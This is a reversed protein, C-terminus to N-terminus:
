AAAVERDETAVPAQAMRFGLGTSGRPDSFTVIHNEIRGIDKSGKIAKDVIAANKKMKRIWKTHTSEISVGNGDGGNFRSGALNAWVKQRMTKPLDKHMCAINIESDGAMSRLNLNASGLTFFVDDVIMLKSHIYIERCRNKSGQTYLKAILVKIGLTELDAASVPPRSASDAIDADMIHTRVLTAPDLQRVNKALRAIMSDRDQPQMERFDRVNADYKKITGGQGLEAVTDYTRPVMGGKEPEPMVIFVYLDPIPPTVCAAQMGQVYKRRMEKLHEAWPTHQFYQNEIYIYNRAQSTALWYAEQITKDDEEPQTRVIQAIHRDKGAPLTFQAATFAQRVWALSGTEAKLDWNREARDWASSFNRNLCHLARGQVRIAYDRYPKLHLYPNAVDATGEWAYGRLPDDYVHEPTDWYDTTSNLGMVYGVSTPGPLDYDILIPKQHHTAVSKLGAIEAPTFGSTEGQLNAAVAAASPCRHRVHVNPMKGTTVKDWWDLCYKARDPTQHFALHFNALDPNNKDAFAAVVRQLQKRNTYGPLNNAMLGLEKGTGAPYWVLLRVRVGAAAVQSLLDGYTLGRPWTEGQREGVEMGPDFGWCILDVSKKAARIDKVIHPFTESACVYFQLHNDASIPHGDPANRNELLWQKSINATCSLEDIHFIGTRLLQNIDPPM